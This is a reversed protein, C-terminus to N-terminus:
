TEVIVEPAIQVAVPSYIDVEVDPVHISIILSYRAQKEASGLYAREKWWGTRPFIGIVNAESAEAATLEIWDRHISGRARAQGITWGVSSGAYNQNDDNRALKNLRGMFEAISETPRKLNFDLGHSRYRYKDRWGIEGPGPEIFYSLTVNIIVPTDDPLDRLAETPWPLEFLHMDKAKSDSTKGDRLYFPQITQEAILTLSDQRSSLAVSRNPIGYGCIRLLAEQNKKPTNTDLTFQDYLETTWEAAHVMLGRVTEPWADPYQALIQAALESAVGTAASTAYNVDFLSKQPQHGVTLLSLDDLQTTFQTKDIGVNGGEMVIDPKFPWKSEWITSTTSYPSLGGIEAIPSYLDSLEDDNIQNKFTVAGVTLANWAQGPDHVANTVNSDPYNKWENPDRVNGAAVILLRRQDDEQGSTIQDVAGSWSSPRGRDRDDESTIALCLVRKFDPNAIEIRSIGQLTREGSLENENTYNNQPIIKVSELRFPLVAEANSELWFGLNDAFAATGCMATGHGEIDHVGWETPKVSLCHTQDLIPSLLPHGNNVGTDLVCVSVNTDPSISLRSAFEDTWEFQEANDMEMWLYSTEKARRFEAVNDSSAFIDRLQSRSAKILVVLREPFSLYSEGVEVELRACTARFNELVELEDDLTRLWAECSATTNEPPLFEVPDYWFSQLIASRLKEISEILNKNKPNRKSPDDHRTEETRYAEVKKVLIHEKGAPVYVTAYEVLEGTADEVERVNLLRIGSRRNELSDIKLDFGPASEFEIYTGNKAPLSVAKRQERASEAEAWVRDLGRRVKTAQGGRDPRNPLDFKGGGGVPNVYDFSKPATPLFLHPYPNEIM